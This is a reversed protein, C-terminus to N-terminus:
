RIVPFSTDHGPGGVPTMAPATPSAPRATREGIPAYPEAPTSGDDIIYADPDVPPTLPVFSEPLAEQPPQPAPKSKQRRRHTDVPAPPPTPEAAAWAIAAPSTADITYATSCFVDLLGARARELAANAFPQSQELVHELAEREVATLEVTYAVTETLHAM